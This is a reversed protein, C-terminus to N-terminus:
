LTPNVSVAIETPANKPKRKARKSRSTGAITTASKSAPTSRNEASQKTELSPSVSSAIETPANKLKRKPRKNKSTGEITTDSKPTPTSRKKASPMTELLPKVNDAVENPTNKRKRKSVKNKSTEAITATNKPAKKRNQCKSGGANTTDSLTAIRNKKQKKNGKISKLSVGTDFGEKALQRLLDEPLADLEDKTRRRRRAPGAAGLVGPSSSTGHSDDEQDVKVMFIAEVNSEKGGLIYAVNYSGDPNIAIIRGVGGPKNMGPWTRLEVNVITGKSLLGPMGTAQAASTVEVRNKKNSGLALNVDDVSTGRNSSSTTTTAPSPPLEKPAEKLEERAKPKKDEDDNMTVDVIDDNHAFLTKKEPRQRSDKKIQPGAPLNAAKGIENKTSKHLEDTVNTARRPEHTELDDVTNNITDSEKKDKEKNGDTDNGKKEDEEEENEEEEQDDEGTMAVTKDVGDNDGGNPIDGGGGSNENDNNDENAPVGLDEYNSEDNNSNGDDGDNDNFSANKEEENREDDNNKAATGDEGDDNNNEKEQQSSCRLNSMSMMHLGGMSDEIGM